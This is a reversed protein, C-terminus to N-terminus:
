SFNFREVNVLIGKIQKGCSEDCFDYGHFRVMQWLIKIFM